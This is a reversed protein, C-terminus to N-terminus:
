ESKQNGRKPFFRGAIKKYDKYQSYRDELLQEEFNSKYYFVIAMVMTILMKEVSSAYIAYFFMGILLGSYIPHRIYKYIGNQILVADAKPSPFPSLNDSLNLIGMIVVVAGIVIGAIGIYSTWAPM